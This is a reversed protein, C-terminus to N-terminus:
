GARPPLTRGAAAPAQAANLMFAAMSYYGMTSTAEVIGREGFLAHCEQFVADDVRNATMLQMVFKYLAAYSPDEFIPERGEGIAQLVKPPVGVREAIPAHASWEYECDLHRAVILIIFESLQPAFVSKYRLFEGLAQASEALEPSYLWLALPGRVGGRPGGAIRAYLAKQRDDLEIPLLPIRSEAGASSVAPSLGGLDKM